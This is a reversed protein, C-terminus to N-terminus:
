PQRVQTIPKQNPAKMPDIAADFVAPEGHQRRNPHGVPCDHFTSSSDHMITHCYCCQVFESRQSLSGM